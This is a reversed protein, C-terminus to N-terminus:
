RCTQASTRELMTKTPVASAALLGLVIEAHVFMLVLTIRSRVLPVQLLFVSFVCNHIGFGAAEGLGLGLLESWGLMAFAM